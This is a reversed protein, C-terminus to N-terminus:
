WKLPMKLQSLSVSCALTLTRLSPLTELINGRLLLLMLLCATCHTAQSRTYQYPTGYQYQWNLLTSTHLIRAQGWRPGTQGIRSQLARGLIVVLVLVPGQTSHGLTLKTCHVCKLSPTNLLFQLQHTAHTWMAGQRSISVNLCAARSEGGLCRM